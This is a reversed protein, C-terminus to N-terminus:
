TRAIDGPIGTYDSVLHSWIVQGTRADLKWLTGGFDGFYVAGDVVAPTASVDGTIAAVWKVALRGANEPRIRHESPQSRTNTPDRGIMSWVSGHDDWARTPVVSIAAVVLAVVSTIRFFRTGPM